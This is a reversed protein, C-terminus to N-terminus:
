DSGRVSGDDRKIGLEADISDSVQRGWARLAADLVKPRIDALRDLSLSAHRLVATVNVLTVRRDHIGLEAITDALQEETTFHLRYPAEAEGFERKLSALENPQVVAMINSRLAGRMLGVIGFKAALSLMDGTERIVNVIREPSLGAAILEFALVLEVIQQPGYRVARGRGTNVGTPFGLKKLHQLRFLLQPQRSPVVDHLDALMALVQAHSLSLEAM